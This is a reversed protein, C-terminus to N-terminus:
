YYGSDRSTFYDYALITGGLVAVAALELGLAGGTIKQLIESNLRDRM